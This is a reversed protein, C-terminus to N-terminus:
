HFSPWVMGASAFSLRAAQRRVEARAVFGSMVRVFIRDICRSKTRAHVFVSAPPTVLAHATALVCSRLFRQLQLPMFQLQTGPPFPPPPQCSRQAHFFMATRVLHSPLMPQGLQKAPVRMRQRLYCDFFSILPSNTQLKAPATKPLAKAFAKKHVAKAAVQKAVAKPVAKVPVAKAVAKKVAKDIAKKPMTKDTVKAPVAKAIAKKPKTKAVAKKMAKDNAKKPMTKGIAKAPVAKAVAKKPKTKAVAKKPMTKAAVEKAVAKPVAKVPAVKNIAKKPM